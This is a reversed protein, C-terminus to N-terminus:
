IKKFIGASLCVIAATEARLINKGLSIPRACKKLMGQEQVSWGGEPGIIFGAPFEIAVADSDSRELAAYWHIDSPLMNLFENLALPAHVKPVDLRECQQSAEQTNKILREINLRHSNTRECMIPQLDTVGLETAKEILFNMPDNKIPSFALWCPQTKEPIRIQDLCKYSPKEYVIKWEGCQENFGFFHQGREFRLVKELYHRQDKTLEIIQGANLTQTLYLRTM